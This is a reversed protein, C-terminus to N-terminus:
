LVHMRICSPHMANHISSILGAQGAEIEFDQKTVYDFNGDLGAEFEVHIKITKALRSICDRSGCVYM